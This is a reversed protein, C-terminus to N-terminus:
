PLLSEVTAEGSRYRRVIEQHLRDIVDHLRRRKDSVETELATLRDAVAQVEEDSLEPLMHLRDAGAVSDMEELTVEDLDPALMAALRGSDPAYIRTSLIESLNSVIDTLGAAGRGESRRTLDFYVVDLRGHAMRRLYSLEVEVTQCENRKARLDGMTMSGLDGTYGPALLRDVDALRFRM